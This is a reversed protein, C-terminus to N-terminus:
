VYYQQTNCPAHSRCFAPRLFSLNVVFFVFFVSCVFVAFVIRDNKTFKTGRRTRQTIGYDTGAKRGEIRVLFLM